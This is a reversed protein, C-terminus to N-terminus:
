RVSVVEEVIECNVKTSSCFAAGASECKNRVQAEAETRTSAKGIFTGDFTTKLSCVNTRVITTQPQDRLDFVQDQLDRVAQELRRIRDNQNADQRDNGVVIRVTSRGGGIEVRGDSNRSQAFTSVSSVLVILAIMFKM